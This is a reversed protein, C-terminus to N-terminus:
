LLDDIELSVTLPQYIESTPDQYSYLKIEADKIPREEKLLSTDLPPFTIEAPRHQMNGARYHTIWLDDRDDGWGDLRFLFDPFRSSLLLMDEDHDYWKDNGYWGYVYSGYEFVSLKSVENELLSIEEATPQYGNWSTVNLSYDTCYGM